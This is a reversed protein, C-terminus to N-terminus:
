LNIHLQNGQFYPSLSLAKNEEKVLYCFQRGAEILVKKAVDVNLTSPPFNSNPM